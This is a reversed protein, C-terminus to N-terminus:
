NRLYKVVCLYYHTMQKNGKKFVPVVNLLSGKELDNPLTSTELYRNFIIELPKYISNSYLKLMRISVQDHGHVKNPDLNQILKAIDDKSFTVSSLCSQTLYELKSPLKSSNSILSCQDAFFPILFNVKKRLIM